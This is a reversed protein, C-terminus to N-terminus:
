RVEQRQLWVYFGMTDVLSKNGSVLHPAPRMPRNVYSRVLAKSLNFWGAVEDVSGFAPWPWVVALAGEAEVVKM